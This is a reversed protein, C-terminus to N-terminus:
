GGYRRRFSRRQEDIGYRIACFTLVLSVAETTGIPIGGFSCVEWLDEGWRVVPVGYIMAHEGVPVLQIEEKIIKTINTDSM